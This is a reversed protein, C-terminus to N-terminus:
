ASIILLCILVLSFIDIVAGYKFYVQKRAAIKSNTLIEDFYDELVKPVEQLDMDSNDWYRRYFAKIYDAKAFKSINGYYILNDTVASRHGPVSRVSVAPIFSLLVILSSIILCIMILSALFMASKYSTLASLAALLAINLAILAANKAEAFDLWHNINEFIKQLFDLRDKTTDM